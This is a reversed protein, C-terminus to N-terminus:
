EVPIHCTEDDEANNEGNNLELFETYIWFGILIALFFDDTVIM